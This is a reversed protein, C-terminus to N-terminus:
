RRSRTRMRHTTKARLCEGHRAGRILGDVMPAMPTSASNAISSSRTGTQIASVSTPKIPLEMMDPVTGVKARAPVTGNSTPEAYVSDTTGSNTSIPSTAESVPRDASKNLAARTISAPTRPPSATPASAAEAHKPATQPEDTAVAAVIVRM